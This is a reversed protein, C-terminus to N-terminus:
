LYMKVLNKNEGVEMGYFFGLFFGEAASLAPTSGYRTLVSEFLFIDTM